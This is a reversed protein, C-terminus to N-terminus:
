LIFATHLTKLQCLFPFYKLRKAATPPFPAHNLTATVKNVIHLKGQISLMKCRMGAESTILRSVVDEAVLPQAPYFL